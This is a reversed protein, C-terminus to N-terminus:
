KQNGVGEWAAPGKGVPEQEVTYNEVPVKGVSSTGFPNKGVRMWGGVDMAVHISHM